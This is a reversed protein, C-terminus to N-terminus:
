MMGQAHKEIKPWADVGKQRLDAIVTTTYDATVGQKYAERASCRAVWDGVRPYRKEYLATWGFQLLTQFYPALSVDALSFNDGVVWRSKELSKEMDQITKMYTKVGDAVDPADLGFKV